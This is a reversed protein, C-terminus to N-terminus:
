WPRIRRSIAMPRVSSSAVLAGGSRVRSVFSNWVRRHNSSQVNNSESQVALRVFQAMAPTKAEEGGWVVLSGRVIPQPWDPKPQVATQAVALAILLLPNSNRLPM